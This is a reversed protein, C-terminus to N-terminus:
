ASTRVTTKLPPVGHNRLGDGRCDAYSTGRRVIPRDLGNPGGTSGHEGNAIVLDELGHGGLDLGPAPGLGLEQSLDKALVANASRYFYSLFYGLAFLFFVRAAM